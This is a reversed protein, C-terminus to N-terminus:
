VDYDRGTLKKLKRAAERRIVPSPNGMAKEWIAVEAQDVEMVTASSEPAAIPIAEVEAQSEADEPPAAEANGNQEEPAIPACPDPMVEEEQLADEVWAPEDFIADPAAAQQFQPDAELFDEANEPAPAAQKEATAPEEAVAGSDVALDAEPMPTAPQEQEFDAAVEFEPAPADEKVSSELEPSPSEAPLEFYNVEFEGAASSHEAAIAAMQPIEMEQSEYAPLEIPRRGHGQLVPQIIRMEFRAVVPGMKVEDGDQLPQLGQIAKGNVETGTLKGFNRIAYTNKDRVIVAHRKSIFWDQLKIHCSDSRGIITEDRDIIFEGNKPKGHTICLVAVPEGGLMTRDAEFAETIKQQKSIEECGFLLSHKGIEVVDGDQLDTKKIRVGNLFTGNASELDLLIWREGELRVRAHNRSVSLNELVIDNDKSRGINVVDKDFAYKQLSVDGIKVTIQPM